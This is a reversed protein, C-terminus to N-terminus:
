YVLDQFASFIGSSYRTYRGSRLEGLVWGLRKTRRDPLGGRVRLHEAREAMDALAPAALPQAHLRRAGLYASGAENFREIVDTYFAAQARRGQRHLDADRVSMKRGAGRLATRRREAASEDPMVATPDVSETTGSHM